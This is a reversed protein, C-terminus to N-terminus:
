RVRITRHKSVGVAMRGVSLSVRYSGRRLRATSVRGRGNGDIKATVSRTRSGRRFRVTLTGFFNCSIRLSDGRRVTGRGFACAPQDVDVPLQYWAVDDIIYRQYLCLLAHRVGPTVIFPLTDISWDITPNPPGPNVYFNDNIVWDTLTESAGLTPINISKQLQSGKTQECRPDVDANQVYLALSYNQTTEDTPEGWDAHGSLRVKVTTGAVIRGLQEVKITNGPYAPATGGGPAQAGAPAAGALAVLLALSLAARAVPQPV